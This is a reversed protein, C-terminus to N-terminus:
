SFMEKDTAGVRPLWTLAIQTCQEASLMATDLVLARDPALTRLTAITAAPNFVRRERAVIRAAARVAAPPVGTSDAWARLATLDEPSLVDGGASLTALEQWVEAPDAQGASMDHPDNRGALRQIRLLDPAACALFRAL